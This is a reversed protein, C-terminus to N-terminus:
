AGQVPLAGDQFFVLALAAADFIGMRSDESMWPKRPPPLYREFAPIYKIILEALAQKNPLGLYGFASRVVARSYAYSPINRHQALESLAANLNRIRRARRTGQLSTDQLVLVDPQYRDLIVAIRALCRRNTKIGRMEKVGWDVPALHGEFLVFAFGRTNLYVALVLAYKRIFNM